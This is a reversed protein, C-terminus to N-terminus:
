GGIYNSDASLVKELITSYEVPITNVKKRMVFIAFNAGNNVSGPVIIMEEGAPGGVPIYSTTYTGSVPWNDATPWGDWQTSDLTAAKSGAFNVSEFYGQDVNLYSEKKIYYFKSEDKLHSLVTQVKKAETLYAAADSGSLAGSSMLAVVVLLVIIVVIFGVFM